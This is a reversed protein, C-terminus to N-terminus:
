NNVEDEEETPHICTEQGSCYVRFADQSSGETPDIWYHGLLIANDYYTVLKLHNSFLTQKCECHGRFKIDYFVHNYQLEIIISIQCACFFSYSLIIRDFTTM